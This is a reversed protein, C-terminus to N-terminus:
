GDRSNTWHKDRKKKRGVPYETESLARQGCRKNRHKAFTPKEKREALKEIGHSHGLLDRSELLKYFVRNCTNSPVSHSPKLVSIEWPFNYIPSNVVNRVMSWVTLSRTCQISKSFYEFEIKEEWLETVGFFLVLGKSTFSM